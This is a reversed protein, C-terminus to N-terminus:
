DPEPPVHFYHDGVPLLPQPAVVHRKTKDRAASLWGDFCNWAFTVCATHVVGYQVGPAGASGDTAILAFLENTTTMPIGPIICSLELRRLSDGTAM